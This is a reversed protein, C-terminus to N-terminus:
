LAVKLVARLLQKTPFQNCHVPDLYVSISKSDAVGQPQVTRWMSCSSAFGEGLQVVKISRVEAEYDPHIPNSDKGPPMSDVSVTKM